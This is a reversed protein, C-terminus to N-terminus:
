EYTERLKRELDAVLLNIRRATEDHIVRRALSRYKSIQIELQVRDSKNKNAV